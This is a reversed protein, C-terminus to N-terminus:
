LEAVVRTVQASLEPYSEITSIADLIHQLNLRDDRQKM